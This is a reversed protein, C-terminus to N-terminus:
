LSRRCNKLLGALLLSGCLLSALAGMPLQAPYILTRSGLDALGLLLIGLLAALTFQQTTSRAGLQLALQPLVLGVFALPGFQSSIILSLAGALLLILARARRSNLGATRAAEEGLLYLTLIRQAPLGCLMLMGVLTALGLATQPTIQYTSGALWNLLSFSDNSGQAIVFQVAAELLTSLAVGLLILRAPPQRPALWALLLLVLGAGAAAFLWPPLVALVPLSGLLMGALMGLSAGASIGLLDPSSLPNAFLRQLLMGSLALGCGAACAALLRPWRLEWLLADPWVLQWDGAVDRGLLACGALMIITVAFWARLPLVSQGAVFVQGFQSDPTSARLCLWILLPAGLLGAAAGTPLIDALYHSLQQALLDAGLLTSMGLLASAVFQQGPSRAGLLRALAPALLSIFGILGVASIAISNLWLALLSGCLALRGVNLGAAAAAVNGLQLLRLPRCLLPLLLLAPLLRPLTWSVWYSDNQALDGAGWVLLARSYQDNLMIAVSALSGLLLNLATGALLAGLGHLERWGTLVVVLLLAALGGALALWELPLQWGPPLVLGGLVIACWAGASTGLTMPSALPNRTLQQLLSGSLAMAMGLLLALTTRPLQSHLFLLEDASVAPKGQLLALQGSLPLPSALELHLLALLPVSALLLILRSRTM